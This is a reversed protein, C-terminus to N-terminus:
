DSRQRQSQPPPWLGARELLERVAQNVLETLDSARQVALHDLQQALVERVRVMRSPKHRDSKGMYGTHLL